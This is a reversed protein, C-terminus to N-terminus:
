VKWIAMKVNEMIEKTFHTGDATSVMGADVMVSFWSENGTYADTRFGSSIYTLILNDDEDFEIDHAKFGLDLFMEKVEEKSETGCKVQWSQGFTSTQSAAKVKEEDNAANHFRCLYRLGGHSRIFDKTEDSILDTIDQNRAILSEGGSSQSSECKFFSSLTKTTYCRKGVLASQSCFLCIRGVPKPFYANENHCPLLTSAPINTALDVGDEQSRNPGWARYIASEWSAKGGCCGKWFQAYDAANNIFKLNRFLVVGCRPLADDLLIRAADGWEDLKLSQESSMEYAELFHAHPISEIPPDGTCWSPQFKINEGQTEIRTYTNSMVPPSSSPSSAAAATSLIVVLVTTIM